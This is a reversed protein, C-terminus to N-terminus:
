FGFFSHTLQQIQKRAHKIMTTYVFIINLLIYCITHLEMYKEGRKSRRLCGYLKCCIFFLIISIFMLSGAVIMFFIELSPIYDIKTTARPVPTPYCSEKRVSRIYKFDLDEETFVDGSSIPMSQGRGKDFKHMRFCGCGHVTANLIKLKKLGDQSFAFFHEKGSKDFINLAGLCNPDFNEGECVSLTTTVLTM